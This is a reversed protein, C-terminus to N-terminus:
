PYSDIFSPQPHLPKLIIQFPALIAWFQLRYNGGNDEESPDIFVLFYVGPPPSGFHPSGKSCNHCKGRRPNKVDKRESRLRIVNSRRGEGETLSVLQRESIVPHLPCHRMITETFVSSSGCNLLKVPVRRNCL